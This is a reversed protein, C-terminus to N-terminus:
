NEEKVRHNDEDDDDEERKEADRIPEAVEDVECNEDNGGERDNEEEDEKSKGGVFSKLTEGEEESHEANEDNGALERELQKERLEMLGQILKESSKLLELSRLTHKAPSFFIVPKAQTQIHNRILTYHKKKAEAYQILAKKRTLARLEAEHERRKDHLARREEMAQEKEQKKKEDLRKEIEGLKDAQKKEASEIKREDKQFRQLTGILLSSFMRRNRSQVEKKETKALEEIKEERSKTEISPMVVTSQLSRKPRLDAEDDEEDDYDDRTRKGPRSGYTTTSSSSSNYEIRRRINASGNRRDTAVPAENSLRRNGREGGRGFHGLEGDIARLKEHVREIDKELDDTM